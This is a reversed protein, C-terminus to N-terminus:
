WATHKDGYNRYRVGTVIAGLVGKERDDKKTPYDTEKHTPIGCYGCIAQRSSYMKAVHGFRYCRYCQKLAAGDAFPECPYWSSEVVVGSTCLTNADDVCSTAIYIPTRSKRKATRPIVVRVIEMGNEDGIKNALYRPMAEGRVRQSQLGHVVVTYTKRAVVAEYDGPFVEQVWETHAEAKKM